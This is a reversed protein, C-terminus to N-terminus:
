ASIKTTSTTYRNKAMEASVADSIELANAEPLQYIAIVTSPKNDLRGYSAYSQSGLEVRAVDKLVVTSGDERAVLVINEFDEVSDLRGQTRLTYQFQQHSPAPPAGVQGAAVQVNQERVANLVDQVSLNLSAMRDPNLWVRMGYDLGGMITVNSVGPIRALADTVNLSAYNSLFLADHTQDPSFLNVVLTMSTSQKNVNVGQRSTEEPLKPIAQQVLNQVRVQAMDPDTGVEFTINLSYSGDNASNSSMYM